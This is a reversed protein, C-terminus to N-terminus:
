SYEPPQVITLTCRALLMFCSLPRHGARATRAPTPRYLAKANAADVQLAQSASGAAEEWRGLRLLAAALNTHLPVVLGDVTARLEPSLLPNGPIDELLALAEEYRAAAAAADGRGFSSNGEVKLDRAERMLQAYRRQLAETHTKLDADLEAEDVAAQDINVVHRRDLTRDTTPEGEDVAALAAEVDFGEWRGYGKDHTHAALHKSPAQAAPTSGNAATATPGPSPDKDNNDPQRAAAAAVKRREREDELQGPTKAVQAFWPLNLDVLARRQEAPTADTPLPDVALAHRTPTLGRLEALPLTHLLVACRWYLSLRTTLARTDPSTPLDPVCGGIPHLLLETYHAAFPLWPAPGALPPGFIAAIEELHEPGLLQMETPLVTAAVAMAFDRLSPERPLDVGPDDGAGDAAMSRCRSSSSFFAMPTGEAADGV